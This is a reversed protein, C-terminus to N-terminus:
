GTALGTTNWTADFPATTSTSITTFSGGGTPRMEYAVSAVGSGADSASAKVPVASGGVTAGAAPATLSGAPATNDVRRNALVASTGTNGTGDTAVVRFDYLGDTLTATDLSASFPSTTDTAITTWTGSGAPARQFDMAVTDPDS